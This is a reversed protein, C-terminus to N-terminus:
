RRSTRKGNSPAVLSSGPLPVPALPCRFEREISQVGPESGQDGRDQGTGDQTVVRLLSPACRLRALSRELEAQLGFALGLLGAGAELFALLLCGLL